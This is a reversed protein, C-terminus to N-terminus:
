KQPYTKMFLDANYRWEFVDILRQTFLPDQSFYSSLPTLYGYSIQKSLATYTNQLLQTQLHEAVPSLTYSSTILRQQTALRLYATIRQYAQTHATSNKPIVFWRATVPYWMTISPFNTLSYNTERRDWQPFWSRLLDLDSLYIFGIDTLQFRILCQIPLADCVPVKETIASILSRFDGFDRTPIQQLYSLIGATKWKLAQDVFSALISNYGAYSEKKNRLLIIDQSSIGFLSSMHPLQMERPNAILNQFLNRSLPSPSTTLQRHVITVLPDLAYPIVTWSAGRILDTVLPSFYPSIDQSFPIRVIHSSFSDFQTSPVLIIDRQTTNGQLREQYAAQYIQLTGAHTISSEVGVIQQISTILQDIDAKPVRPPMLIRVSASGTKTDAPLSTGASWSNGQINPTVQTGTNINSDTQANQIDARLTNEPTLDPDANQTVQDVLFFRWAITVLIFWLWLLVIIRTKM